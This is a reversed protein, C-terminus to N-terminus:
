LLSCPDAAPKVVVGKLKPDTALMMFAVGAMRVSHFRITIEGDPDREGFCEVYQRLRSQSLVQHIEKKLAKQRALVLLCRTRGLRYIQTKTEAAMLYTPTPVPRVQARSFGIYFGDRAFRRLFNVAGDQHIFTIMATPCGTITSTDLLSASFIAGGRIQPLIRDLTATKPLEDIVVTRFINDHGTTPIYRLGWQFFSNDYVGKFVNHHTTGYQAASVEEEQSEFVGSDAIAWRLWGTSPNAMPSTVKAAALNIYAESIGIHPGTEPLNVAHPNPLAVSDTAGASDM